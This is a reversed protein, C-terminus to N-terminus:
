HSAQSAALEQEVEAQARDLAERPAENLKMAEAAHKEVNNRWNSVGDIWEVYRSTVMAQDVVRWKPDSKLDPADLGAKTGPVASFIMAQEQQCEPKLLYKALEWAADPNQAGVPLELDGGAALTAPTKRYPLIATGFDLNQAKGYVGRIWQSGNHVAGLHHLTFADQGPQNGQANSFATWGDPTYKRAYRVWQDLTEIAAPNNLQPKRRDEPGTVFEAGNTWAWALFWNFIGVLPYFGIRVWTGDPGRLDIRSAYDWLQDWNQAPRESDLGVERFLAKNWYHIVVTGNFPLGYLQNHWSSEAVTSKWFQDLDLHDRKVLEQLSQIQKQKARNPTTARGLNGILDPPTGAAIATIVKAGIDFLSLGTSEVKVAPFATEFTKVWRTIWEYADGSTGFSHWFTVTGSVLAHRSAAPAPRATPWRCAPVGGMAGLGAMVAARCLFGRRSRGATPATSANSASTADPAGAITM